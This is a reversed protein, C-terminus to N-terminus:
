TLSTTGYVKSDAGDQSQGGLRLLECSIREMPSRLRELDSVIYGATVDGDAKHGVLRKITHSSIDLSDAVTIFTRRLDHLTFHVSSAERVRRIQTPISQIYGHVSSAPFVWPIQGVEMRRKLLANVVTSVPQTLPESNKTDPIHLTRNQFDVHEWRIRAAERRRLGTFLLLLLYDRALADKSVRATDSLQGVASFWAPLQNPSIVGFRRPIKRWTGLERLRSVPNDSYLSHGDRDRYVAAAFRYVASLVAMALNAQSPGHRECLERYREAAAQYTIKQLPLDRWEALYKRLM